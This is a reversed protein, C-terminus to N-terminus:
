LGFFFSFLSLFLFFDEPGGDLMLDLDKRTLAASGAQVREGLDFRNSHARECSGHVNEAISSSDRGM